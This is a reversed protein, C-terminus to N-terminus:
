GDGWCRWVVRQCLSPGSAREMVGFCSVCARFCVLRGILAASRSWDRM